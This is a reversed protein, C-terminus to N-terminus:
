LMRWGLKAMSASNRGRMPRIGLGGELMPKTAISREFLKINWNRLRDALKGLVKTMLHNPKWCQRIFNDFDCHLVWAAQFRFPKTEENTASFRTTSILILAHGSQNRILHKLRGTDILANNEIGNNFKSCHRAMDLGSHDREDLTRTENYDGALLWPLPPTLILM